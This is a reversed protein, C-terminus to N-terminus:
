MNNLNMYDILNDELVLAKVDQKALKDQMIYSAMMVGPTINYNELAKGQYAEAQHSNYIYVLPKDSTNIVTKTEETKPNQVYGNTEKSPTKYHFTNELIRVPENVDIVYTFAKDLINSAKKEYLLHYNSDVLLAKIFDENTHALKVNMIINYSVEFGLFVLLIYVLIRYKFRRRKKLKIKKM